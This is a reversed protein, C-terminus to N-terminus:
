GWYSTLYWGIPGAVEINHLKIFEELAKVEDETVSLDKQDILTSQNYGAIKFTRSLAIIPIAYNDSGHIFIEFKKDPSVKEAWTDYDGEFEDEDWPATRTAYEEEVVPCGFCLQGDVDIGM